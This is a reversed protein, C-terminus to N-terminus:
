EELAEAVKLSLERGCITDITGVVVPGYHKNDLIPFARIYQLTRRVLEESNCYVMWRSLDSELACKFFYELWGAESSTAQLESGHSGLPVDVDHIIHEFEHTNKVYVDFPFVMMEPREKRLKIGQAIRKALFTLRGNDGVRHPVGETDVSYLDQPIRVSDLACLFTAGSELIPAPTTAM